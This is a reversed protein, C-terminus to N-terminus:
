TCSNSPKIPDHDVFEINPDSIGFDSPDTEDHTKDPDQSYQGIARGAEDNLPQLVIVQGTTDITEEGTVDGYTLFVFNTAPDSESGSRGLNAPEGILTLSSVALEPLQVDFNGTSASSGILFTTTNLPGTLYQSMNQTLTFNSGLDYPVFNYFLDPQSENPSLSAGNLVPTQARVYLYSGDFRMSGVNIDGPAVIALEPSSSAPMLDPAQQNLLLLMISDTGTSVTSGGYVETNTSSLDISNGSVLSLGNVTIDSGGPSELDESYDLINGAANVYLTDADIRTDTIVVDAPTAVPACDGICTRLAAGQDLGSASITIQGESHLYSSGILVSGNEGAINIASAGLESNLVAVSNGLSDGNGGTISINSDSSLYSNDQILVSGNHANLDISSGYFASSDVNIGTGFDDTGNSTITIGGGYLNSYGVYAYGNVANLSIQDAELTSEYIGVGQSGSITISGATERNGAYLGSYGVYAYGSTANLSISKGANIDTYKVYVDGAANVTIINGSITSDQISVSAPVLPVAVSPGFAAAVFNGATVGTASITINDAALTDYTDGDYYYSGQIDVGQYGTITISGNSGEYGAYLSSDNLRVFGSVANLSISKDAYLYSNGVDVNGAATVNIVNGSISSDQISVNAPVPEIPFPGPLPIPPGDTSIAAFTGIIIPGSPEVLGTANINITGDSNLYSGDEILISGNHSTADISAGYINSNAIDIGNGDWNAGTSTIVVSGYGAHLDSDYIGVVGDHATLTIGAPTPPTFGPFTFGPISIEAPNAYISSDNVYISGAAAVTVTDGSVTSDYINVDAPYTNGDGNVQGLASITIASDSNVESQYLTVGTYGSITLPGASSLTSYGGYVDSTTSTLSLSGGSSITSWDNVNIEGVATGTFSINAHIDDNSVEFEGASNVVITDFDLSNGGGVYIDGGNKTTMLLSGGYSGGYFSPRSKLILANAPISTDEVFPGHLESNYINIGGNDASLTMANAVLTSGSKGGIDIGGYGYDDATLQEGASLTLGQDAILESSYVDIDGRSTHAGINIGSLYSDYEITIDGGYTGSAALNITDAYISSDSIDINGGDATTLGVTTFGSIESNNELTIDGGNSAHALFNTPLQFTFGPSADRLQNQNSSSSYLYSNDIDIGAYDANLTINDSGISSSGIYIGGGYSTGIPNITLSTATFNSEDISTGYASHINVAGVSAGSWDSNIYLNVGSWPANNNITINGGTVGNAGFFYGYVSDPPSPTDGGFDTRGLNVDGFALSGYTSSVDAGYNATLNGVIVDDAGQILIDKGSNINGAHIGGYNIATSIQVQGAININIATGSGGPRLDIGGGYSSDYLYGRTFGSLNGSATLAAGCFSSSTPIPNLSGFGFGGTLNTDGNAYGIGILLGGSGTSDIANNRFNGYAAINNSAILYTNSGYALSTEIDGEYVSDAAAGYAPRDGGVITLNTPDILLTGGTGVETTGNLIFGSHGSLEVFGGHGVGDTRTSRADIVSGFDTTLQLGAILHAQGGGRRGGGSVDITGSHLVNGDAHLYVGGGTHAGVGSADLTGSNEVSGGEAVLYIDGGQHDIGRASIMGQNNVVTRSLAGATKATMIVTGEQAAIEGLNTVGALESLAAQDVKFGILGTSDADITVASGAALVVTGLKATIVGGNTVSDGALVVFGKDSTTIRGNNVVSATSNGSMVFHGSTFDEDKIDLTTAVLAGVDIQAGEGFVIGQPNVIFVRGNAKISGLISSPDGGIVRNLVAASANPQVFVVYEDSGVNFQQYNIIANQATQNVTTTTGATSITANADGGVVAGGTPAALALGPALLSALTYAIRRSMLAASIPLLRTKM